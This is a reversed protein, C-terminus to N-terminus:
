GCRGPARLETCKSTLNRRKRQGLDQERTTHGNRAAMFDRKYLRVLLWCAVLLQGPPCHWQSAVSTEAQSSASTQAM